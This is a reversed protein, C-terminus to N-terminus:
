KPCYEKHITNARRYFYINKNRKKKRKERKTLTLLINKKKERERERETKLSFINKDLSSFFIKTTRHEM